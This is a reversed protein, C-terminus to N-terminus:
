RTALRPPCMANCLDRAREPVRAAGRIPPAFVFCRLKVAAVTLVKACVRRLIASEASMRRSTPSRGSFRRLISTASM